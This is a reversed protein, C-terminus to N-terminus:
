FASSTLIIIYVHLETEHEIEEMVAEDIWHDKWVDCKKVVVDEGQWTARFTAAGEDHAILKM